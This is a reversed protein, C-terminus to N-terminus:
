EEKELYGSVRNQKSELAKKLLEVGKNNKCWNHKILSSNTLERQNKEKNFNSKQYFKESPMCFFDGTNINHCVIFFNFNPKFDKIFFVDEDSQIDRSKVQIEVLGGERDKIILDTGTDVVPVFVDFDNKLLESIIHYEIAKGKKTNNKTIM